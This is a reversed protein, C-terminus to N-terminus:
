DRMRRRWLVAAVPGLWLMEVLAAIVNTRVAAITFLERRETGPFLAIPSIYWRDSLPWLAKIGFPPNPDAGLWDLPIHSGFACGFLVVLPWAVRGTVWRTVGMTIIMVLAVAGISHSFARHIPPYVLDGDPLVALVVCAATVALETSPNWQCRTTVPTKSSWAVAMGALAHGVPSPM